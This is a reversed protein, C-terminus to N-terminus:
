TMSVMQVPGVEQFYNICIDGHRKLMPVNRIRFAVIRCDTKGTEEDIRTSRGIPGQKVKTGAKNGLWSITLRNPKFNMGTNISSTGVVCQIKGANFDRCIKEGDTKGSAFTFPVKMYAKLMQEQVYEDILILTPMGALVAESAVSAAMAAIEHNKYIHEQNMKVVNDSKYQSKSTVDFVLFSLKALHGEEIARQITYTFVRKGIIGELMLDRGDNREQTASLFWRYPCHGLLDNCFYEFEKAPLTHSEDSIFVQYKKFEEKQEPTKVMALSKGVCILIDKGIEKKGGGFMGVNKKGFYEVAEKYFQKALAKKPTSVITPLGAHKTLLHALFSKGVGTAMEVHSHPNATLANFGNTQYDKPAYPPMKNWARLRFEPYQVESTFTASPFMERVRATLGSLFWHNNGDFEVMTRNMQPELLAIRDSCYAEGWKHKMKKLTKIQREVLRDKYSLSSSLKQIEEQSGYVLVKVPTKQVLQM